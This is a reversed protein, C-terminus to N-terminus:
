WLMPFDISKLYEEGEQDRSKDKPKVDRIEPLGDLIGLRSPYLISVERYGALGV